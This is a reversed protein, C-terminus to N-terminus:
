HQYSSEDYMYGQPQFAKVQITNGATTKYSMVGNDRVVAWFVRGATWDSPYECSVFVIEDSFQGANPWLIRDPESAEKWPATKVLLGGNIRWVIQFWLREKIATTDADIAPQGTQLLASTSVPSTVNVRQGELATAARKAFAFPYDDDRYTDTNLIRTYEKTIASDPNNLEPWLSAAFERSKKVREEHENSGRPPASAPLTAASSEQTPGSTRWSAFCVIIVLVTLFVVAAAAQGGSWKFSDTSTDVPKLQLHSQSFEGANQAPPPPSVMKGDDPVILGRLPLWTQADESWYLTDATLVGSDWMSLIQAQTYPGKTEKRLYVFFQEPITPVPDTPAISARPVESTASVAAVSGALGRLQCEAM